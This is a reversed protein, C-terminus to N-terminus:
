SAESKIFDYVKSYTSKQICFIMADAFPNSTKLTAIAAAAPLHSIKVELSEFLNSVLIVCHSKSTAMNADAAAGNDALVSILVEKYDKASDVCAMISNIANYWYMTEQQNLRADLDSKATTLLDATTRDHNKGMHLRGSKVETIWLSKDGQRFLIVDFGKKISKEELNFFASAVEFEDFLEMFLVHALLEGIMGKKTNIPKSEYRQLFSKLTASYHFIPTKAYSSVRSGHCIAALNRRLIQKLQDSIADIHCVAYGDVYRQFTVGDITSSM